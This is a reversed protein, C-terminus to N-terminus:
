TEAPAFYNAAFISGYILGIIIHAVACSKRVLGLWWWIYGFHLFFFPISHSTLSMKIATWLNHNSTRFLQAGTPSPPSPQHGFPPLHICSLTPYATKKKRNEEKKVDRKPVAKQTQQDAKAPRTRSHTTSHTVRLRIGPLTFSSASCSTCFSRSSCSWTGNQPRPMILQENNRRGCRLNSERRTFRTDPARSHWSYSRFSVSHFRGLFRSCQLLILSRALWTRDLYPLDHKTRGHYTWLSTNIFRFVPSSIFYNKCKLASIMKPRELM